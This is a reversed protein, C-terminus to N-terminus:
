PLYMLVQRIQDFRRISLQPNSILQERSVGAMSPRHPQGFELSDEKISTDHQHSHNAIPILHISVLLSHEPPSEKSVGAMSSSRKVRKLHNDKTASTQLKFVDPHKSAIPATPLPSTLFMCTVMVWSLGHVCATITSSLCNDCIMRLRGHNFHTCATASM